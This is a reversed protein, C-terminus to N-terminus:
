PVPPRTPPAYSFHLTKTGNGARASARPSAFSMLDPEDCTLFVDDYEPPAAPTGEGSPAVPLVYWGKERNVFCGGTYWMMTSEDPRKLYAFTNCNVQAFCTPTVAAPASAHTRRVKPRPTDDKAPFDLGLAGFAAQLIHERRTRSLRDFYVFAQAVKAFAGEDSTWNDLLIGAALSLKLEPLM